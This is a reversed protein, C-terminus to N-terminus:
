GNGLYQMQIFFSWPSTEETEEPLSFALDKGATLILIDTVGQMRCKHEVELALTKRTMINKDQMSYVNKLVDNLLAAGEKITATYTQDRVALLENQASQLYSFRFGAETLAAVLKYPTFSGILGVKGGDPLLEQLISVIKGSLKPGAAMINQEEFGTIERVWHNVRASLGTVIQYRGDKTVIAAGDSWYPAFNTLYFM